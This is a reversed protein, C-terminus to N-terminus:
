VPTSNVFEYRHYLSPYTFRDDCMPDLDSLIETNKSKVTVLVTCYAVSRGDRSVTFREARALAWACALDSYRTSLDYFNM